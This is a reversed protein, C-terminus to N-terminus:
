YKVVLFANILRICGECSFQCAKHPSHHGPVGMCYKGSHLHIGFRVVLMVSSSFYEFIYPLLRRCFSSPETIQSEVILCLMM